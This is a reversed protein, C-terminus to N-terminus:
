VRLDAFPNHTLPVAQAALYAARVRAHEEKRAMLFWWQTHHEWKEEVENFTPGELDTAVPEWEDPDLGVARLHDKARAAKVEILVMKDLVEEMPLVTELTWDRM